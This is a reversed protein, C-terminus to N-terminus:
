RFCAQRKGRLDKVIMRTIKENRIVDLAQNLTTNENVFSVKGTMIESVKTKVPDKGKAVARITIDRDTIMGVLSRANRGADRRM